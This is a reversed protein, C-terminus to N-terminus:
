PNVGAIHILRAEEYEYTDLLRNDTDYTHTAVRINHPAPNAGVAVVLLSHTFRYGDFSLQIVDGPQAEELPAVRGYPGSKENTTLFKYLYPVGSWAATRDSVNYYYWGMIPTHNMVGSGAYICQSIFNTCDGGIQSFDYYKPNRDYAWAHAYAVAASRDYNM